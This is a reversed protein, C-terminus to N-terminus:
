AGMFFPLALPDPVKTLINLDDFIAFQIKEAKGHKAHELAKPLKVEFRDGGYKPLWVFDGPLCWTGEPWDNMTDRSKYALPGVSIVKAVQTNDRQIDQTKEPVELFGNLKQKVGRIQVLVRSGFPNMGPDVDPFFWKLDIQYQDDTFQDLKADEVMSM